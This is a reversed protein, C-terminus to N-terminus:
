NEYVLIQSFFWIFENEYVILACNNIIIYANVGNVYRFSSNSQCEHLIQHSLLRFSSFILLYAIYYFNGSYIYIYKKKKKPDQYRECLDSECVSM